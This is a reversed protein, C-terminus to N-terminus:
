GGLLLFIAYLLYASAISAMMFVIVNINAAPNTKNILWINAAGFFLGSIIFIYIGRNKKIFYMILLIIIIKIPDIAQAAVM